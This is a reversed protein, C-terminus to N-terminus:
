SKFFVMKRSLLNENGDTGSFCAQEPKRLVWSGLFIAKGTFGKKFRRSGPFFAELFVTELFVQQGCFSGKLTMTRSDLEGVLGSRLILWKHLFIM